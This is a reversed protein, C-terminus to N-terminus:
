RGTPGHHRTPVAEIGADAHSRHDIREAHGARELARNALAAWRERIAELDAKRNRGAKETALKEGLGDPALKRTTRLM